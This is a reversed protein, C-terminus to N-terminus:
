KARRAASQRTCADACCGVITRQSRDPYFRLTTVVPSTFDWPDIFAMSWFSVSLCRVSSLISSRTQGTQPPRNISIRALSTHLRQWVIQSVHQSPPRPLHPGDDPSKGLRPSERGSEIYTNNEATTHNPRLPHNTLFSVGVKTPLRCAVAPVNAGRSRPNNVGPMLLDLYRGRWRIM